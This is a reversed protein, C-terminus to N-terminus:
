PSHADPERDAPLEGLLRHAVIEVTDPFAYNGFTHDGHYNTNVLYKIPRDPLQHVVARIKRASEGNIGADIILAADERVILDRPVPSAM